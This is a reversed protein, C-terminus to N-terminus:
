DSTKGVIIHDKIKEFISDGIGKVNKIDEIKEFNGNDERHKVIAAAKAEGIGSLQSLTEADAINIDINDDAQALCIGGITLTAAWVFVVWLSLFSRRNRIKTAM